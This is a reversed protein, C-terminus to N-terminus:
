PMANAFSHQECGAYDVFKLNWQGFEVRTQNIVRCYKESFKNCFKDEILM